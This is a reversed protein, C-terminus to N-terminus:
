RAGLELKTPIYENESQATEVAVPDLLELRDANIGKSIVHSIITKAREKALNLLDVQSVKQDDVLGDRMIKRLEAMTEDSDLDKAETQEEILRLGDKGFHDRYMETLLDDLDDKDMQSIATTNDELRLLAEEFMKATKMALKDFNIDYSGAVKLLLMEKSSFVGALKDLKEREPPLLDTKGAEFQINGLEEASMGLMDGLFRFPATAVGTILNKFATWVVHGIAFDPKDVDGTVPVDLDIVGDDDKLLAIALSVPASIADESEVEEGLTVRKLIVRNGGQMQSADIKYGLEVNMKGEKLKYGVFKGSYPSLNTMDINEFKVEMNTYTKPAASLLEGSIKALGYEDVVGDIDVRTKIDALNGLEIMEGNLDHIETKFPLPLSLDSFEGKGEKFNVKGIFVSFTKRKTEEGKDAKEDLVMLGDLNTTGKADVKMRAYPKYIDVNAIKMQDPNRRLDIDKVSLKSFAFFTEGERRESLNLDKILANAILKTRKEDHEAKFDLNLFGKNIDINARKNLYGQFSALDLGILKLESKVKLPSQRLKSNVKLKGTRNIRASLETNAWSGKVSSLDNVELSIDNFKILGDEANYEDKYEINAKSLQVNKVEWNLASREKESEAIKEKKVSFPSLESFNLIGTKDMSASVDLGDLDIRSINIDTGATKSLRGSLGLGKFGLYEEQQSLPRLSFESLATEFEGVYLEDRVLKIDETSFSINEVGALYPEPSFHEEFSLEDTKIDVKSIDVTWPNTENKEQSPESAPFYSLWNIVGDKDRLVKVSFGVVLFDDINIKKSRLDANGSLALSPLELVNEKTKKDQLRLANINLQYKSINIQMPEASLNASYSMSANIVGDAVVFGLADRFYEWQTYLRGSYLEFSGELLLPKLSNIKGGYNINTGDELEIYLSLQNDHDKATSFDRLTFSIAKLSKEFPKSGTDDLFNIKGFKIAFKELVFPPLTVETKEKESSSNENAALLDSFNFVGEKNKHIRIFPATLEFFKVKVEGIILHLPDINIEVKRVGAFAREGPKGLVILKDVNLEFTYPNCSVSEINVKRTVLNEINVRIQEKIINPLILFGFLGYILFLVTFIKLLLKITKM